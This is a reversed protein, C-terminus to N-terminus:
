RPTPHAPPPAHPPAPTIAAVPPTKRDFAEDLETSPVAEVRDQNAMRFGRSTALSKGPMSQVIAHAGPIKDYFSVDAARFAADTLPLYGTRQHWEAANVPKALWALLQATAKEQAQPHGDIATRASGSILLRGARKTTKTVFRRPGVCFLLLGHM